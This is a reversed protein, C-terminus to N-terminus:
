VRHNSAKEFVEVLCIEDLGKALGELGM